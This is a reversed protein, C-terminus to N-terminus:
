PSGRHKEMAFFEDNRNFDLLRIRGIRLEQQLLEAAGGALKGSSELVPHLGEVAWLGADALQELVDSDLLEAVQFHDAFEDLLVGAADLLKSGFDLLAARRAARGRAV